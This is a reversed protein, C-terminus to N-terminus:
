DLSAVCKVCYYSDCFGLFDNGNIAGGLFSDVGLKSAAFLFKNVKIIPIFAKLWLSAFRTISNDADFLGSTLPYYQFVTKM